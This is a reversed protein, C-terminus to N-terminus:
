FYAVQNNLAQRNNIEPSLFQKDGPFTRLGSTNVPTTSTYINGSSQKIYPTSSVHYTNRIDREVDSQIHYTNRPINERSIFRDTLGIDHRFTNLDKSRSNDVLPVSRENNVDLYTRKVRSMTVNDKNNRPYVTNFEAISYEAQIPTNKMSYRSTHSVSLPGGERFIPNNSTM